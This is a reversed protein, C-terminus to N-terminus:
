KTRASVRGDGRRALKRFPRPPPVPGWRPVTAYSVRPDNTSVEVGARYKLALPSRPYRIKGNRSRAGVMLIVCPETGSGVFVHDTWPACHVFDWAKLPIEKEEILLRCRGSLVLFDEQDSEAHYHCNPQGPEVVHLNIGVQAFRKRGEFSSSAGFVSNGYWVSQAANLVFWGDGSPRMGHATRVLKAKKARKKVMM